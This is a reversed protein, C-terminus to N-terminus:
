KQRYDAIFYGVAWGTPLRKVSTYFITLNGDQKGRLSVPQATGSFVGLHDQSNDPGTVLSQSNGNEWGHIDTWTILDTSIAHGWSINGWSVHNPHWQYMIHYTKTTPDYMAGCPDNMWGAPALVHFQPRWRDFLTNNGLANLDSTPDLHAAFVPNTSALVALFALEFHLFKMM